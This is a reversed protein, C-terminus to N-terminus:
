LVTKVKVMLKEVRAQIDSNESIQWVRISFTDGKTRIMLGYDSSQSTWIGPSSPTGFEQKVIAGAKEVNTATSKIEERYDYKQQAFTIVSFLTLLLTLIKTRM